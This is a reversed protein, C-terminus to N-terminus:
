GWRTFSYEPHADCTFVLEVTKGHSHTDCRIRLPRWWGGFSRSPTKSVGLVLAVVLAKVAEEDSVHVPVAAQM